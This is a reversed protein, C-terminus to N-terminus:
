TVAKNEKEDFKIESRGKGATKRAELEQNMFDLQHNLGKGNELGM